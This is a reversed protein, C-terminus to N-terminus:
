DTKTKTKQDDEIETKTGQKTTKPEEALVSAGPMLRWLQYPRAGFCGPDCMGLVGGTTFVDLAVRHAHMRGCFPCGVRVTVSDSDADSWQIVHAKIPKAHPQTDQAELPQPQTSM